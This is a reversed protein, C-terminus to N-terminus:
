LTTSRRSCTLTGDGEAAGGPAGELRRGAHAHRPRRDPREAPDAVAKGREARRKIERELIGLEPPNILDDAFNIALLPAKIKGPGPRPRLGGLERSRVARRQRRDDRMATSVHTTSSAPRRQERTPAERQRESRTARGDPLLMQPRPGCARRSPAHVGRGEVGPRQPHRRHRGAALGPQPRLDAGAPQGAAHLADM